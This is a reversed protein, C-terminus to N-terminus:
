LFGVQTKLRLWDRVTQKWNECSTTEPSFMNFAEFEAKYLGHIDPYPDPSQTKKLLLKGIAYEMPIWTIDISRPEKTGDQMLQDAFADIPGKQALLFRSISGYDPIPLSAVIGTAEVALLEDTDVVAYLENSIEKLYTDFRTTNSYADELLKTAENTQGLKEHIYAAFILPASNRPDMEHLESLIQLSKSYDIPAPRSPLLNAQALALALRGYPTRQKKTFPGYSNSDKPKVWGDEFWMRIWTNKSSQYLCKEEPCFRKYEEAARNWCNEQQKSQTEEKEIKTVIPKRIPTTQLAQIPLTKKRTTHTQESSPKFDYSSILWVVLVVLLGFVGYKTKM